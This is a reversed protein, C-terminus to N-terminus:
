DEHYVNRSIQHSIQWAHLLGAIQFPAWHHPHQGQVQVNILFRIIINHYIHSGTDSNEQFDDQVGCNESSCVMSDSHDSVKEPSVSVGNHSDDSISPNVYSVDVECGVSVNDPGVSLNESCNMNFSDLKVIDFDNIVELTKAVNVEHQESLIWFITMPHCVKM